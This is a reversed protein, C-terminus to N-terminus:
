RIAKLVQELVQQAIAKMGEINPHGAQKKINKLQIFPV